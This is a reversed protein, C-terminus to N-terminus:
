KKKSKLTNLGLVLWTPCTGIFATIVAFAAVGYLVYDWPSIVQQTYAAWILIAGVVFRIIKDLRGINKRM